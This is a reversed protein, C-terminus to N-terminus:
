KPYISAAFRYDMETIDSGGEIPRGTKTITGPIRYTMISREDVRYSGKIKVRELPTLVQQVVDQESWGQTAMFYAITKRRDLRDVLTRRMHEHPFGLTHGTEHRVVRYFESEPTDPGFAQLNMTPWSDPIELIDTGLYSWYGDAERAIRVKPSQGAAARFYINAAKGWANMHEIVKLKTQDDWDGVFGVPLAVGSAPWRKGVLVALRAPTPQIIAASRPHNAPNIALANRAAALHKSKPLQKIVCPIIDPM